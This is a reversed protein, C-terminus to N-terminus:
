WPVVLARLQDAVHPEFDCWYGEWGCRCAHWGPDDPKSGKTSYDYRHARVEDQLAYGIDRHWGPQRNERWASPNEAM